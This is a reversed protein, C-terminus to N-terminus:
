RPGFVSEADVCTCHKQRDVMDVECHRVDGQGCTINSARARAIESALVHAESVPRATCGACLWAVMLVWLLHPKM